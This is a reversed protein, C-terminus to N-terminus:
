NSGMQKTKQERLQISTTASEERVWLPQIQKDYIQSISGSFTFHVTHFVVKFILTCLLFTVHGDSLPIM